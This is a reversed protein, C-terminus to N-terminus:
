RYSLSTAVMRKSDAAKARRDTAGGSGGGFGLWPVRHGRRGNGGGCRHFALGDRGGVELQLPVVEDVGHGALLGGESLTHTGHLWGDTGLGGRRDGNCYLVVLDAGHHM